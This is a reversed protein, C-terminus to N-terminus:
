APLCCNEPCRGRRSEEAILHCRTPYCTKTASPTPPCTTLIDRKAVGPFIQEEIWRNTCGDACPHPPYPTIYGAHNSRDSRSGFDRACICSSFIWAERGPIIAREAKLRQLYRCSLRVKQRSSDSPVRWHVDLQERHPRSSTQARWLNGLERQRRLARGCVTLRRPTWTGNAARSRQHRILRNRQVARSSGTRRTSSCRRAPSTPPPTSRPAGTGRPRFGDSEFRRISRPHGARKYM